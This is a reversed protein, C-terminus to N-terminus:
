LPNKCIGVAAAVLVGCGDFTVIPNQANLSREKFGFGQHLNKLQIKKKKETKRGHRRTKGCQKHKSCSIFPLEREKKIHLLKERRKRNAKVKKWKGTQIKKSAPLFFFFLPLKSPTTNKEQYEQWQQYHATKNHKQLKKNYLRKRKKCIPDNQPFFTQFIIYLSEWCLIYQM